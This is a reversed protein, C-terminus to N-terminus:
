KQNMWRGLPWPPPRDRTMSFIVLAFFLSRGIKQLAALIYDFEPHTQEYDPGCIWWLGPVGICQAFLEMAGSLSKGAREGGAVSFLPQELGVDADLDGPCAAVGRDGGLVFGVPAAPSRGGGASDHM